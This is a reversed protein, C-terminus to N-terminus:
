SKTAKKWASLKRDAIEVIAANRIPTFRSTEWNQLDAATAIAYRASGHITIYGNDDAIRHPAFKGLNSKHFNLLLM